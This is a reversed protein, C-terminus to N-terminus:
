ENTCEDDHTVGSKERGKGKKKMKKRIEHIERIRATAMATRM